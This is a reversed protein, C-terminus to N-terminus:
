ARGYTRRKGTEFKIEDIRKKAGDKIKQPIDAKMPDRYGAKEWEKFNTIERKNGDKDTDIFKRGIGFSDRTNTIAPVTYVRTLVSKCDHCMERRSADKIPKDIDYKSGCFNCLYPYLPM